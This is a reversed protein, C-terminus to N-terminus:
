ARVFTLDTAKGDSHEIAILLKWRGNVGQDQRAVKLVEDTTPMRAGHVHDVRCYLGDSDPLFAVVRFHAGYGTICRDQDRTFVNLHGKQGHAQKM